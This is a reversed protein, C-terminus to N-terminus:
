RTRELARDRVKDELPDGPARSAKTHRIFDAALRERDTLVPPLRKAFYRVDGALIIEGQADLAAAIGMWGAVIAKRTEVLRVHAPDRITGSKALESAISHVQERM